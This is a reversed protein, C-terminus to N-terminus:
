QAIFFTFSKKVFNNTKHNKLFANLSLFFDTYLYVGFLFVISISPSPHAWIITKTIITNTHPNAAQNNLKPNKPPNNRTKTSDTTANEPM